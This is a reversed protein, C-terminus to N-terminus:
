LHWLINHWRILSVLGDDYTEMRSAIDVIGGDKISIPTLRTKFHTNRSNKQIPSPNCNKLNYLVVYPRKIDM